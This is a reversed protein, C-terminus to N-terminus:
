TTLLLDKWLARMLFTGVVQFLTFLVGDIQDLSDTLHMAVYLEVLVLDQIMIGILLLSILSYVLMESLLMQKTMLYDVQKNYWVLVMELLSLLLTLVM